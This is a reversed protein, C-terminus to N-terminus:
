MIDLNNFVTSVITDSIEEIPKMHGNRTCLIRKWNLAKIIKNRKTYTETLHEINEHIDIKSDDNSYRKKINKMSVEPEVDLYLVLDPKPLKCLKYEILEIMKIFYNLKVQSDNSQHLINSTTYRDCVILYNGDNYYDMLTLGYEDKKTFTGIRDVAYFLSSQFPNYIRHNNNLYSKVLTSTESEYNPFALHIVKYKFNNLKKDEELRKILLETQTQKGSGDIGDIVILKSKRRKNYKAYNAYQFGLFAVNVGVIILVIIRLITM